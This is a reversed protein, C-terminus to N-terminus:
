QIEALVVLRIDERGSLRIRILSRIETGGKTNSKLRRLTSARWAVDTLYQLTKERRRRRIGSTGIAIRGSAIPIVVIGGVMIIGMTARPVVAVILPALLTRVIPVSDVAVVVSIVIRREAGVVRVVVMTALWKGVGVVVRPVRYSVGAVRISRGVDM